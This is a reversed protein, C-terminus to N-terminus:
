DVCIYEPSIHLHGLALSPYLTSPMTTLAARSASAPPPAVRPHTTERGLVFCRRRPSTRRLPHFFEGSSFLVTVLSLLTARHRLRFAGAASPLPSAQAGLAVVAFHELRNRSLHPTQPLLLFSRAPERNIPPIRPLKWTEQGRDRRNTPPILKRWAARPVRRHARDPRVM